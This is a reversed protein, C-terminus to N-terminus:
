RSRSKYIGRTQEVSEKETAIQYDSPGLDAKVNRIIWAKLGKYRELFIVRSYFFQLPFLKVITLNRLSSDMKDKIQSIDVSM